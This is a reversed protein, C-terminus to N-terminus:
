SKLLVQMVIQHQLNPNPSLPRPYINRQDGQRSRINICVCPFAIGRCSMCAQFGSWAKPNRGLIYLFNQLRNLTPTPLLPGSHQTADAEETRVAWRCLKGLGFGCLIHRRMKFMHLCMLAPTKPQTRSITHAIEGNCWTKELKRGGVVGIRLLLADNSGSFEHEWLDPFPPTVAFKHRSSGIQGGKGLSPTVWHHPRGGPLPM